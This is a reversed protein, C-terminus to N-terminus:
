DDQQGAGFCDGEQLAFGRLFEVADLATKGPRQLCGIELLGEGCSVVLRQGVSVLVGPNSAPNPETEDCIAASLIKLQTGCPAVTRACPWGTMARVLREIEIASATWDITADSPSIKRCTTVAEQDQALGQPFQGSDDIEARLSQIFEVLLGSGESALKAFLEPGTTRADISVERECLVPGADLALVMRQISVGTKSDGALIASQIPSAGRWRPLLSGHLNICGFRPIDLFEQPLIQGYSVVVGLDPNLAAFDSLFDSEAASEPRLVPLGAQTAAEVLPNSQPKRGRGSRSDAATILAVPPVKCQLLAAFSDEAFPPSGIFVARM